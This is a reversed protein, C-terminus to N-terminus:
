TGGTKFVYYKYTQAITTPNTIVFSGNGVSFSFRGGTQAAASQTGGYDAQTQLVINFDAAGATTLGTVSVSVTGGNAAASGSTGAKWLRATRIVTDYLKTTGDTAFVNLGYTGPVSAAIRTVTYTKGTSYHTPYNLPAQTLLTHTVADGTSNGLSSEPVTVTTNAATAVVTVLTSVGRKIRYSHGPITNAITQTFSSVGPLLEVSSSSFSFRDDVVLTRTYSRGTYAAGTGNAADSRWLYYSTTTGNTGSPVAVNDTVAFSKSTSNAGQPWTTSLLPTSINAASKSVNYYKAAIASTINLYHGQGAGSNRDFHSGSTETIVENFTNAAARTVTFSATTKQYVSIGVGGGVSSARKGWVDYTIVTPSAGSPAPVNAPNDSDINYNGPPKSVLNNNLLYVVRNQPNSEKIIYKNTGTSDVSTVTFSFTGDTTTYNAASTNVNLDAESYPILTAASSITTPSGSSGHHGVEFVYTNGRTVTVTMQGSPQWAGTSASPSTQRARIRLSCGTTAVSAGSITVTPTATVTTPISVNVSGLPSAAQCAYANVNLQFYGRREGNVGSTGWIRATASYYFNTQNRSGYFWLAETRALTGDPPVTYTFEKPSQHNQGLIPGQISGGVESVRQDTRNPVTAPFGASVTLNLIDGVSVTLGGSNLLSYSQGTGLLTATLTHTTM